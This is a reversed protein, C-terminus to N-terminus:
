KLDSRKEKLIEAWWLLAKLFRETKGEYSQDLLDCQADFIKDAESFLVSERIAVAGFNEIVPRLQEVARIGGM